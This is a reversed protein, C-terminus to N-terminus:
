GKRPRDIRNRPFIEIRLSISLSIRLPQFGRQRSNSETEGGGAVIIIKKKKRRKERREEKPDSYIDGNRFPPQSSLHM